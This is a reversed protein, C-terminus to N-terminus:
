TKFTLCKYRIQLFPPKALPFHLNELATHALWSAGRRTSRPTSQKAPPAAAKGARLWGPGARGVPAARRRERRFEESRPGAQTAGGGRERRSRIRPSRGGPPQPPPRVPTPADPGRPKWAASKFEASSQIRRGINLAARNERRFNGVRFVVNAM